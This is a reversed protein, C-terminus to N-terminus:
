YGIKKLKNITRKASTHRIAIGGAQEFEECNKPNDDILINPNGHEDRAFLKKESRRVIHVREVLGLHTKLWKRKGDECTDSFKTRASLIHPEHPSIFNWLEEIDDRPPLSTWFDKVDRLVPWFEEDKYLGRWYLKNQLRKHGKSKLIQNTAPIFDVLVEDMDCYIKPFNQTTTM